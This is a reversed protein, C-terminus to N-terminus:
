ETVYVDRRPKFGMFALVRGIHDSIKILCKMFLHQGAVLLFPLALSYLPIAIFAKMLGRVRCPRYKFSNRGRQLAKRLMFSRQWRVAPVKEYVIAEKCWIFRRGAEALRRFFDQDESGSGFERRFAPTIGNLVRRKFMVNGTRAENWGIEHGTEYTPRDFIGSKWVWAPPEQEFRSEVPGLVVDVSPQACSKLLLSLWNPAPFEDDDIFAVFDGTVRELARNRALAINQEPEVCYSVEIGTLRVLRCVTERGSELRDNDAVIISFTFGGQTEQRGLEELLRKLLHPRKYTCICVSIHPLVSLDDNGNL